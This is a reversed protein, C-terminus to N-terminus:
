KSENNNGENLDVTEVLKESTAKPKNNVKENIHNYQSTFVLSASLFVGILFCNKAVNDLYKLRKQSTKSDSNTIEIIHRSNEQFITIVSLICFFFAIAAILFVGFYIYNNNSELKMFGLLFGLGAVSLTLLSKDLEMRTSLFASVKHSYFSVQKQKLLEEDSLAKEKSELERERLNLERKQSELIRQCKSLEAKERSDRLKEVIDAVFEGM